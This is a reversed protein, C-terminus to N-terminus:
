LGLGADIEFPLMLTDLGQWIDVEIALGDPISDTELSFELQTASGFSLSGRSWINVPVGESSSFRIDNVTDAFKRSVQLVLTLVGDEEQVKM